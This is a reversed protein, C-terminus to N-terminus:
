DEGFKRDGVLAGIASVLCSFEASKNWDPEGWGPYANCGYIRKKYQGTHLELQWETGDLVIPNDYSGKWDWVCVGGALLTRWFRKWDEVALEKQVVSDSYRSLGRSYELLGDKWEVRYSTSGFSGM